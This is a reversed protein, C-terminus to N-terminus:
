VEEFAESGDVDGEGVVEDLIGAKLDGRGVSAGVGLADVNGAGGEGFELEEGDDGGGGAAFGEGGGGDGGELFVEEVVQDGWGVGAGVLLCPTPLLLGRRM